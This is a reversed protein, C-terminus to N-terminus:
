PSAPVNLAKSAPTHALGPPPYDNRKVHDTPSSRVPIQL